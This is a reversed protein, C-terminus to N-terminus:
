EEVTMFKSRHNQESKIQIVEHQIM